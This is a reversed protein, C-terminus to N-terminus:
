IKRLIRPGEVENLFYYSDCNYAQWYTGEEVAKLAGRPQPVAIAIVTKTPPFITQPHQNPPANEFRSMPAFGVLAAGAELAVERVKETLEKNMTHEEEYTMRWEPIEKTTSWACMM